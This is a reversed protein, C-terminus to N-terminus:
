APYIFKFVFGNVSEDIDLQADIENRQKLLKEREVDIAKEYM